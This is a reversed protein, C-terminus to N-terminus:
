KGLIRRIVAFFQYTIGIMKKFTDLSIIIVGKASLEAPRQARQMIMLLYRRYKVSADYWNHTYAAMAINQSWDILQQGYYSVMFFQASSSFFFLMFGIGERNLGQLITYFIVCCLTSATSFLNYALLIGFIDNLEKQLDFLRQHRRVFNVLFECDEEARQRQPTYEALQRGLNSFHMCIQASHCMMWVDTGLNVNMVFHSFAFDVVLTLINKWMSMTEFRKMPFTSLLIFKAESDVTFYQYLYIIISQTLPGLVVFVVVFYYYYFGYRAIRPWFFDNVRYKRCHEDGHPYLEELKDNLIRLRRRYYLFIIFKVDSNATFFYVIAFRMILVPNGALEDWQITRLILYYFIHWHSLFCIISYTKLLVDQWLPKPSNLFDIGLSKLIMNPIYTFDNYSRQRELETERELQQEREM